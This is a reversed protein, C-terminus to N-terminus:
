GDATNIDLLVPQFNSMAAVALSQGDSAMQCGEIASIAFSVNYYFHGYQWNGELDLAYLYGHERNDTGPPAFDGSITVGGVIILNNNPDFAFCRVDEDM